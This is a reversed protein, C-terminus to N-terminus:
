RRRVLMWAGVAVALALGVVLAEGGHPHLHFVGGADHAAAPAAILVAPLALIRSM